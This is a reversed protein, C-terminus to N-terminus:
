ADAPDDCLQDITTERREVVVAGSPIRWMTATVRGNINISIKKLYGRAVNDVANLMIGAAARCIDDKYIRNINNRAAMEAAIIEREAAAGDCDCEQSAINDLDGQTLQRDEGVQLMVIQGCFKCTGQVAKM